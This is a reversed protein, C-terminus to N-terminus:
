YEGNRPFWCTVWTNTKSVVERHNQCRAGSNEKAAQRDKGNHEMETEFKELETSVDIDIDGYWIHMHDYNKHKSWHDSIPGKCFHGPLIWITGLPGNPHDEVFAKLFSSSANNGHWTAADLDDLDGDNPSLKQPTYWDVIEPDDSPYDHIMCTIHHNQEIWQRHEPNHNHGETPPADSMVQVLALTETFPVEWFPYLTIAFEDKNYITGWRDTWKNDLDLDGPVQPIPFFPSDWAWPNKAVTHPINYWHSKPSAFVPAILGIIILSFTSKSHM